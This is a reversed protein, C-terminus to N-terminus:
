GNDPPQTGSQDRLSRAFLGIGGVTLVLIVLLDFLSMTHITLRLNAIVGVVLATVSGGALAWGILNRADYFIMGIGLVLPILIMGSTVSLTGGFVTFNYLGSGFNFSETVVISRLLMYGGSCMMLFGLIFSGIGGQTGGAGEIKM